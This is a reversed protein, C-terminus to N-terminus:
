WNREYIRDQENDVTEVGIRNHTLKLHELIDAESGTTYNCFFCCWDKTALMESM